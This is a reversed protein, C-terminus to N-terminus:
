LGVALEARAKGGTACLDADVGEDFVALPDLAVAGREGAEFVAVAVDREGM